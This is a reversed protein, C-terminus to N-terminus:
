CGDVERSVADCAWGARVKRGPRGRTPHSNRDCRALHRVPQVQGDAGVACGVGAYGGPPSSGRRQCREDTRTDRHFQGSVRDARQGARCLGPNPVGEYETRDGTVGKQAEIRSPDLSSRVIMLGSWPKGAATPGGAILVDQVDRIGDINSIATLQAQLEPRSKTLEAQM